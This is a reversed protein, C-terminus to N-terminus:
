ASRDIQPIGCKSRLTSATESIAGSNEICFLPAGIFTAYSIAVSAQLQTHMTAEEVSVQPRGGSDKLIRERTVNPSVYLFVFHTPSLRVIEEASFPTIRFGYKEITVAHCDIILPKQGRVNSIYALLEADVASIDSPEIIGSSLTRLDTESVSRGLKKSLHRALEESYTFSAFDGSGVLHRVLTSKGAAPAGTLYIVCCM